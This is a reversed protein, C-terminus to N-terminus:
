VADLLHSTPSYDIKWDAFCGLTGDAVCRLGVYVWRVDEGGDYYAFGVALEFIEEGCPCAAEELDADEEYEASDLLWSRAGCAACTREACGEDDDLRVQFRDGGCAACVAHVVTTAPYGDATFAALYTDVDASDTGRWFDGSEDIGM